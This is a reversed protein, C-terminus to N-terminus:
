LLKRSIREQDKVVALGEVLIVRFHALSPVDHAAEELAAPLLKILSFLGIQSALASSDGTAAGGARWVCFGAMRVQQHQGPDLSLDSLVRIKSGVRPLM